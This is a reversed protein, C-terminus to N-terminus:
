FPRQWQTVGTAKNHYYSAGSKPDKHEEWGLPLGGGSPAMPAPARSPMQAYAQQAQQQGHPYAGYSGAGYGQGQGQHSQVPAAGYAHAAPAGGGYAPGQGQSPHGYGGGYGYAAQPAGYGGMGGGGQPAGGGYAGPYHGGGGGGMGMGMASGGGYIGQSHHSAPGGPGGRGGGGGGGAPGTGSGNIMIDQVMHMGASVNPEAGTVTIKCPTGEPVKQDVQVRAGSQREITKITEGGRGIVRGCYQKECDVIITVMGAGHSPGAHVGPIQGQCVMQYVSGGQHGMHMMGGGGYIGQQQMMGGGGGGGRPGQGGQAPIYGPQGPLLPPLHPGNAIVYAILKKAESVALVTGSLEVQRPVGEPFDQKVQVRAGTRAQIDKINAGQAGIIRGVFQHECDMFETIHEGGAMANPHAAQPGDKLIIRVMEAASQIAKPDGVLQLKRPEGPPFNQHLDVKCGCRTQITQITSGKPGIIVGCKDAPINMVLKRGGDTIEAIDGGQFLESLLSSSPKDKASAASTSESAAAVAASRSTDDEADSSESKASKVKSKKKSDDVAKGGEDAVDEETKSTSRSRGRKKTAKQVEKPEEESDDEKDEKDEKDEEEESHKEVEEEASNVDEEVDARKAPSKKKSSSGKPPM